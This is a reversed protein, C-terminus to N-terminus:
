KQAIQPLSIPMNTSVKHIFQSSKKKTLNEVSKQVNKKRNKVNRGIKDLKTARNKDTKEM